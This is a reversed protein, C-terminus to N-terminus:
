MGGTAGLIPGRTSTVTCGAHGAPQRDAACARPARPPATSLSTADM